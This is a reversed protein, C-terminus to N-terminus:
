CNDALNQTNHNGEEFCDTNEEDEETMPPTPKSPAVVPASDQGFAM